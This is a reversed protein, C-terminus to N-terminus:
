RARKLSLRRRHFIAISVHSRQNPEIRHPERLRLYLFNLIALANRLRAKFNLFSGPVHNMKYVTVVCDVIEPADAYPRKPM